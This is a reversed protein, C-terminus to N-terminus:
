ATSGPRPMGKDDLRAALRDVYYPRFMDHQIDEERTWIFKVPGRRKLKAFAVAQIV